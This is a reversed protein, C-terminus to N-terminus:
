SKNMLYRPHFHRRKLRARMQRYSANSTSSIFYHSVHKSNDKMVLGTKGDISYIGRLDQELLILWDQYDNLRQPAYTLRVWDILQRRNHLSRYCPAVLSKYKALLLPKLLGRKNGQCGMWDILHWRGMRQNCGCGPLLNWSQDCGGHRESIIHMQQFTSGSTNSYRIICGGCIPCVGEIQGMPFVSEWCRLRTESRTEM